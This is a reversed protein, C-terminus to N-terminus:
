RPTAPTRPPAPEHIAAPSTTPAQETDTTVEEAMASSWSENIMTSYEQDSNAEVLDRDVVMTTPLAAFLSILAATYSAANFANGAFDALLRRGLDAVEVESLLMDMPMGQLLCHEYGTLLRCQSRLWIMARPIVADDAADASSSANSTASSRSMSQSIEYTNASPDKHYKFGLLQRARDPLIKYWPNATMEDPLRIQGYALNADGLKKLHQAPWKCETGHRPGKAAAAETMARLEQEVVAHYDPLVVESLGKVSEINIKDMIASAKDLIQEAEEFALGCKERHLLWFYARKRPMCAGQSMADAITAKISYGQQGFEQQMTAFNTSGANLIDPVNELILLPPSYTATYQILGDWTSGTSGRKTALADPAQKHRHMNLRSITKCSFGASVLTPGQSGSPVPCDRAHAVCASSRGGMACANKFLCCSGDSDTAAAWPHAHVYQLLFHQKQPEVECSFCQRVRSRGDTAHAVLISNCFFAIEMGSCLSGVDLENRDRCLSVISSVMSNVEVEDLKGLQAMMIAHILTKEPLLETKAINGAPRKSVPRAAKRKRPGDM